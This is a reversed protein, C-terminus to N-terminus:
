DLQMDISPLNPLYEKVFDSERPVCTIKVDQLNVEGKLEESFISIKEPEKDNTQSFGLLGLSTKRERYVMGRISEGKKLVKVVKKGPSLLSAEPKWVESWDESWIEVSDKIAEIKYEYVALFSIPGPIWDANQIKLALDLFATMCFSASDERWNGPHGFSGQTWRLSFDGDSKKSVQPLFEQLALFDNAHVGFAALKIADEARAIGVQLSRLASNEEFLLYTAKALLELVQQYNGSSLEKKANDYFEKVKLNNILISNDLDDLSIKLYEQCWGSLYSYVKDGVNVWQNPYPLIMGHKLNGRVVNLQRCYEKGEVERKQHKKNKIPDFYDMLFRKNQTPLAGIQNAIAAIGMEVADHAILIKKAISFPSAEAEPLFLIQSLLSKTFLLQQIIEPRLTNIKNKM